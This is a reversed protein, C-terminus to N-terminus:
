EGLKTTSLRIERAGRAKRQVFRMRPRYGSEHLKEVIVCIACQAFEGRGFRKTSCLVRREDKILNVAATGMEIARLSTEVSRTIMCLERFSERTFVNGCVPKAPNTFLETDLSRVL